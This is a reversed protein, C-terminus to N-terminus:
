GTVTPNYTYGPVPTKGNNTILPMSEQIQELIYAAEPDNPAENQLIDISQMFRRSEPDYDQINNKANNFDEWLKNKNVIRSGTNRKHQQQFLSAANILEVLSKAYNPSHLHLMSYPPQAFSETYPVMSYPKILGATINNITYGHNFEHSASEASPSFRVIQDRTMPAYALASHSSSWPDIPDSSKQNIMNQDTQFADSAKMDMMKRYFKDSKQSPIRAERSYPTYSPDANKGKFYRVHDYASSRAKNPDYVGGTTPNKYTGDSQRVWGNVPNNIYDMVQKLQTETYNPDGARQNAFDAPIARGMMKLGGYVGNRVDEAPQLAKPTFKTLYPAFTNKKHAADATKNLRYGPIM